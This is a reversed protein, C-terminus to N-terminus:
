AVPEFSMMFVFGNKGDHADRQREHCEDAAARRLCLCGISGHSLRLEISGHKRDRLRIIRPGGFEVRAVGLRGRSELHLRRLARRVDDDKQDVVDSETVRTCEAALNGHRREITERALSELVVAEVGRCEARRRSHSEQGTAVVMRVVCARDHFDGRRERAIGPARGCLMM